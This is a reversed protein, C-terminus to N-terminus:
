PREWEDLYLYGGDDVEKIDKPNIGPIPMLHDKDYRGDSHNGLLYFHDHESIVSAPDFEQTFTYFKMDSDFFMTFLTGPYRAALLHGFHNTREYNDFLDCAYGNGFFAAFEPSGARYYDVRLADKIRARARNYASLEDKGSEGLFRYLGLTGQSSGVLTWILTGGLTAAGLWAPISRWGLSHIAEYLLILNLGTSLYLPILHHPGWHKAVLLFGIIQLGVLVLVTRILPPKVTTNGKDGPSFQLLITAIAALVPIWLIMPEKSILSSAGQWLIDFRTFGIDGTGYGGTHTALETGWSVLAPLRPYIPIAIVAAAVSFSAGMILRTRWGRAAAFVILIIPFFTLKTLIGLACVVGGLVVPRLLKGGTRRLHVLEVSVCGAAICWPILMLDSSFWITYHILTVFFLSPVQLLLATINSRIKLATLWPFFWLGIVSFVLLSRHIRKIFREPNNIVTDVIQGSSGREFCRLVAAGLIQTTTGPHDVWFPSHGDILLLSNFLYPYNNEFNTSLWTPGSVKTLQLAVGLFIAPLIALILAGGLARRWVPSERRDTEKGSVM